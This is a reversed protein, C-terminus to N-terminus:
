SVFAVEASGKRVPLRDIGFVQRNAAASQSTGGGASVRYLKEGSTEQRPDGTDPDRFGSAPFLRQRYATEFEVGTADVSVTSQSALEM